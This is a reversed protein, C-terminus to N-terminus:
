QHSIGLSDMLADSKDIQEQSAKILAADERQMIKLQKDQIININTMLLLVAVCFVLIFIAWFVDWNFKEEEM